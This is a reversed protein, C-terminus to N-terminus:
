HAGVSVDALFCGVARTKAAKVATGALTAAIANELDHVQAAARSRGLEVYRDDIRGSYVLRGTADFVAAEPAVTAEARQVLARAGFSVASGPFKYEAMHREIQAPTEAADPYVMWFKVGLSEFRAAIRQLEPAYRNTLPCDTRAFILVRVKASAAFPDAARGLAALTLLVAVICFLRVM